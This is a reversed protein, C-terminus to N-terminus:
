HLVRIIYHPFFLDCLACQSMCSVRFLAHPATYYMYMCTGSPTHLRGRCAGTPLGLPRVRCVSRVLKMLRVSPPCTALGWSRFVLQPSSTCATNSSIAAYRYWNLSTYLGVCRYVYYFELMIIACSNFSRTESAVRLVSTMSHRSVVLGVICMCHAYIIYMYNCHVMDNDHNGSARPRVRTDLYWPARTVVHLHGVEQCSLASMKCLSLLSAAQNRWGWLVTAWALSPCWVVALLRQRLPDTHPPPACLIHQLSFSFVSIISIKVWCKVTNNICHVHIYM